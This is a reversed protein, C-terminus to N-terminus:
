LVIHKKKERVTVMIVVHSCFHEFCDSDFPSIICSFAYQHSVQRATSHSSFMIKWKQDRILGMVFLSTICFIDKKGM